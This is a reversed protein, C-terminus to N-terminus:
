QFGSCVQLAAGERGTVILLWDPSKSKWHEFNTDVVIAQAGHSHVNTALQVLYHTQQKDLNSSPWSGQMGYMWPQMAFMMDSEREEDSVQCEM